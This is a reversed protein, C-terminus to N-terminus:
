QIGNAVNRVVLPLAVTFTAGGEPNNQATIQGSHAQVISQVITLGIGMGRSKTTVFPAFLRGDLEAPLGTGTDSVGIEVTAPMVKASMTIRRRGPPMAAMADMANMLLNVFVQQLLVQDGSIACPAPPMAVVAEVERAQMDHAVLAITEAVVSRLDLPKKELQHSKLMTRHREIIQTARVGQGQIDSLIEKITDPTARDAAVMMDLAQANYMISSLPQGLEHGISSTLASMTQRRSADAALALNKRSDSEARRRARRQYLLAGILLSQAIFAALATLVTRRYEHWLTPGRFRIESGAPLRSEPIGWRQLERWDYVPTGRTQLPTKIASTPDGNLVRAAIEASRRSVDEISNLSGGVIGLGMYVSQGGFMPANASAHLQSLVREDAYAAGAGDTGFMFYFIASDPPLNSCRQLIERLSMENSWIFTVAGAYPELEKELQQRWFQGFSGAGVVMFIQRTRPLLQLIEGVVTGWRSSVFTAVENDRLSVDGTVRVDPAALLLPVEPFIAQRHKRAFLTAPGALAVILDPKARGAFMSQIYEVVAQEPAGALGSPGVVVQVVNVPKGALRDLEIRFYGTLSDIVANGREFPQLLLVQRVQASADSVVGLLLLVATILTLPHRL